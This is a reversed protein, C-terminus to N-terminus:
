IAVKLVVKRIAAVEGDVRCPQHLDSPYFIAFQGKGMTFTSVKENFFMVDKEVLYAETPIQDAKAVYGIQEHGEVVYQIDIYKLHSELKCMEVPKSNYESVLAFLFEGDIVHKGNELKSFDTKALYELGRKLRENLGFYISANEIKDTVM